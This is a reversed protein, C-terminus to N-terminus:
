VYEFIRESAHVVIGSFIGTRASIANQHLEHRGLAAGFLNGAAVNREVYGSGTFRQIGKVAAAILVLDFFCNSAPQPGRYPSQFFFSDSNWSRLAFLDGGAAFHQSSGGEILLLM